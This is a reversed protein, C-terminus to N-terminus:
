AVGSSAPEEGYRATKDALLAQHLLTKIVAQRSINLRGALRDLAVLMDLGLDLNMRHVLDKRGNVMKGGTFHESVDEDRLAKAEIDALPVPKKSGKAKAAKM